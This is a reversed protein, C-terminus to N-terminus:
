LIKRSIINKCPSIISTKYNKKERLISKLTFPLVVTHCLGQKKRNEVKTKTDKKTKHKKTKIHMSKCYITKSLHKHLSKM